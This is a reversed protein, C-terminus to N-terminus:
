SLHMRRYIESGERALRDAMVNGKIGQHAKVYNWKIEIDEDQLLGDLEMFDILNKVPEGNKLHWDKAKWKKIWLTASNILFQSDTSICLKTIGLRKATKIAYVAAQIEGVNNTVRGSVPKGANLVHDDGFYVGYGACANKRGNNFCSGDTYVIVYGESDLLFEMNGIHKVAVPEWIVSEHRPIKSSSSGPEASDAKRKRNDPLGEVQALANLLDEDSLECNDGDCPPWFSEDEEDELKPIYPKRRRPLIAVGDPQYIIDGGDVYFASIYEEAAGINSFKKYRAGKYNKVKEECEAWTTFIGVKRGKAVAYFSMIRKIQLNNFALKLLQM